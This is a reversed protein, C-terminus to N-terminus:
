GAQRRRLGPERAAAQDGSAQGGLDRTAGKGKLSKKLAKLDEALGDVDATPALNTEEAPDAALDYVEKIPQDIFKLDGRIFGSLPAAGLTLYPSM